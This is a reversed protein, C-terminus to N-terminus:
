LMGYYHSDMGDLLDMFDDLYYVQYHRHLPTFFSKDREDTAIFVVRGDDIMKRTNLEYIDEASIWMARFQFDGRRIHMSDFSWDPGEGEIDGNSERAIERLARVVRAAACQLEDRYRFHDRIFRQMWLQQKWSQYFLFAYHHILMRSGSDQEGQVHIVKANQYDMNYLCISEDRDALVESMRVDPPADVPAPNGDFSYYRNRWVKMNKFPIKERRKEDQRKVEEFTRNVDMVGAPGPRDPIGAICQDPEWDVTLTAERLWDWLVRMGAGEKSKFTMMNM